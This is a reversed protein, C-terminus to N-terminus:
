FSVRFGGNVGNSSYNSRGIEGTYYAFASISPNFQVTAGADLVLSDRGIRPGNVTFTSDAGVFSSEIAATSDLYEHQWQARVEPTVVVKGINFAYSAKAGIASKLSEQHQSPFRLRADGSGTEQFSDLGLYTYQLSAVPGVTLGGVRFDYGGGLLADFQGGTTDSNSRGGLGSRTIDYANYGGGVSANVYYSENFLTGYVSAKGSNVSVEGGKYLDASTNAYSGAIGVLLNDNIRYDGGITLGGTTFESGRARSTSEIDAWEGNGTAFFSWRSEIVSPIVTQKGVLSKGDFGAISLGDKGGMAIPAGDFSVTGRSNTLTLGNASFGRSGRRADELRREINNNQIQAGSFGINFIVALQEPSLLSLVDPLNEVTVENLDNILGKLQGKAMAKNLAKAISRQNPSLSALSTFSDQVGELWVSNLDYGVKFRRLTRRELARYKGIVGGEAELFVVKDGVKVKYGDLYGVRLKGDLFATGSVYITDFQFNDVDLIDIHTTGKSYQIFDQGIHLSGIRPDSPQPMMLMPMQGFGGPNVIGGYNSLTTRVSGNGRLTGGEIWVREVSGAIDLSGRILVTDGTYSTDGALVLNGAGTKILNGSGAIDGYFFGDAASNTTLTASGLDIFGNGSGWAGIAGVEQDYHNLDLAGGWFHLDIGKSLVNEAGARVTGNAFALGGVYDNSGTLTLTGSGEKVFGGHGTMRGDFTTDGSNDLTLVSRTFDGEPSSFLITGNGSLSSVEQNTQGVDFIGSDQVILNGRFVWDNGARLTGNSVITSGSAGNTGTLITTGAGAQVFDGSGIMNGSITNTGSATLVRIVGDNIIVNSFVSGNALYLHLEGDTGSEITIYSAGSISGTVGSDSDGISLVGGRITTDGTYSNSGTLYVTGWAATKELSASGTLDASVWGRGLQYQGSVVLPSGVIMAGDTLIVNDYVTNPPTVVWADESVVLDEAKASGAM